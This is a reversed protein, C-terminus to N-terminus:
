WLRTALWPPTHHLSNGSLFWGFLDHLVHILAPLYINDATAGAGSQAMGPALGFNYLHLLSDLGIAFLHGAPHYDGGGTVLQGFVGQLFLRLADPGGIANQGHGAGNTHLRYREMELLGLRHIRRQVGDEDAHLLARSM